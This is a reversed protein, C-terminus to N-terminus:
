PCIGKRQAESAAYLEEITISTSSYLIEQDNSHIELQVSFEWLVFFMDKKNVIINGCRVYLCFMPLM